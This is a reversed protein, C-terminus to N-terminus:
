VEQFVRERCAARGIETYVKKGILRDKADITEAVPPYKSAPVVAAPETVVVADRGFSHVAEFPVVQSTGLLGGEDVLLAVIEANDAGILLEKVTHIKRGDALSLVDKGVTAKVKRMPGERTSSKVNDYVLRGLVGRVTGVAAGVIAGPPGGTAAGLAAGTLAGAGAAAAKAPGTSEGGESGDDPAGTPDRREASVTL